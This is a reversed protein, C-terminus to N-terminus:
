KHLHLDHFWQFMIGSQWFRFSSPPAVSLMPWTYPNKTDPAPRSSESGSLRRQEHLPSAAGGAPGRPKAIASILLEWDSALKNESPTLTELAAHAHSFICFHVHTDVSAMVDAMNNEDSDGQRWSGEHGGVWCYGAIVCGEGGANKLCNLNQKYIYIYKLGFISSARWVMMWHSNTYFFFFWNQPAYSNELRSIALILRGFVSGWKLM